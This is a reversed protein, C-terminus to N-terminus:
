SRSVVSGGQVRFIPSPVRFIQLALLTELDGPEGFRDRGEDAPGTLKVGGGNFEAFCM